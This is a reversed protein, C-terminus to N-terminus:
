LTVGTTVKGAVKDELDKVMKEVKTLSEGFKVELEGISKEDNEIATKLQDVDNIGVSELEKLISKKKDENEKQQYKLIEIKSQLSNLRTALDNTAM